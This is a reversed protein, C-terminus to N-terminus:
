SQIQLQKEFIAFIRSYNDAIWQTETANSSEKFNQPFESIKGSHWDATQQWEQQRSSMGALIQRLDLRILKITIPNEQSVREAM